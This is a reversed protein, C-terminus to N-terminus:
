MKGVIMLKPGKLKLAKVIAAAPPADVIVGAAREFNPVRLPTLKGFKTNDLVFYAKRAALIM